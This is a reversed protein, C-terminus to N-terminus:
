REKQKQLTKQVINAKYACTCPKTWAAGIWATIKDQFASNAALVMHVPAPWEHESSGSVERGISTFFDRM